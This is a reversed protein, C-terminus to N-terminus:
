KQIITEIIPYLTSLLCNIETPLHKVAKNEIYFERQIMTKIIAIVNANM